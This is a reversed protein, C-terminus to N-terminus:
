RPPQFETPFPTPIVTPTPQRSPSAATSVVASAPLLGFGNTSAAAAAAGLLVVISAGTLALRGRRELAVSPGTTIRWSAEAEIIFRTSVFATDPAARPTHRLAARAAAGEIFSPCQPHGEGLCLRLQTARDLALSPEVARCRHDSDVGDAVNRLDNGFALFPCIRDVRVAYGRAARGSGTSHCIGVRGAARVM